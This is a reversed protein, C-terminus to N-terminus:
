ISATTAMITHYNFKCSGISDTGIVVSTTPELKSRPSTYLMLHYTQSHNAVTRINEGPGETEEVLLVSRWSIVSINNFTANLVMLGNVSNCLHCNVYYVWYILVHLALGTNLPWRQPLSFTAKYSLHGRLFPEIWIFHEIVPCSFLSMKICTVVHVPKM